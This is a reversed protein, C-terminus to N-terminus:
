FPLDDDDMETVNISDEPPPPPPPVNGEAPANVAVPKIRWADLSNFYKTDGQPSTWSRGRLNFDVELMAGAEVADLLGVKDQVLQFLVYQPYMPNEVYEIVFERKQFRDSVQNTDYKVHLKGQITM